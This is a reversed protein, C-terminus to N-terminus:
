KSSWIFWCVFSWVFPWNVSSQVFELKNIEPPFNSLSVINNVRWQNDTWCYVCNNLSLVICLWYQGSGTVLSLSLCIKRFYCWSRLRPLFLTVGPFPRRPAVRPPSGRFRLRRSEPCPIGPRRRRRFRAPGRCWWTQRTWRNCSSCRGSPPPGPRSGRIVWLSNKRSPSWARVLRPSQCPFRLFGAVRRRRYFMYTERSTTATSSWAASCSSLNCCRHM